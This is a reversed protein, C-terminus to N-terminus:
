IDMEFPYYNIPESWYRQPGPEPWVYFAVFGAMAFAAIVILVKM